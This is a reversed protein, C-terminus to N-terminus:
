KSVLFKEDPFWQIANSKNRLLLHDNEGKKWIFFTKLTMEYCPTVDDLDDGLLILSCKLM